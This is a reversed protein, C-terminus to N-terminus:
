VHECSPVRLSRLATNMRPVEWHAVAGAVYMGERGGRKERGGMCM